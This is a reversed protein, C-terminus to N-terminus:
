FYCEALSLDLRGGGTRGGSERWVMSSDTAIGAILSVNCHLTSPLNFNCRLATCNLRSEGVKEATRGAPERRM